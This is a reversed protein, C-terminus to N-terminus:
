REFRTLSRHVERSREFRPDPPAESRPCPLHQSLTLTDPEGHRRDPQDIARTKVIAPYFSETKRFAEESTTARRKPVIPGKAKTLPSDIFRKSQAPDDPPTKPKRPM